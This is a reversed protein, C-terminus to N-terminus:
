FFCLMLLSDVGSNVSVSVGCYGSPLPPLVCSIRQTGDTLYTGRATLPGTPVDITDFRVFILGGTIPELNSGSILLTSGGQKPAKRPTLLTLVAAPQYHFNLPNDLDRHFQQGNLSISVAAITSHQGEVCHDGEQVCHRAPSTCVYRTTDVLQAVVPVLGFRCLLRGTDHLDRGVVEIRTGGHAPGAYPTIATLYVDVVYEFTLSNGCIADSCILTLGVRGAGAERQPSTCVVSSSSDTTAPVRIGDSDPGFRCIVSGVPLHVGSVLVATGGTVPGLPPSASILHVDVYEFRLDNSIDQGNSSIRVTM